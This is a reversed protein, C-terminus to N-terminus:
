IVWIDYMCQMRRLNISVFLCSSVQVVHVAAAAQANSKPM